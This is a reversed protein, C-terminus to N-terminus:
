FGEPLTSNKGFSRARARARSLKALGTETSFPSLDHVPGPVPLGLKKNLISQAELYDAQQSPTSEALNVGRIDGPKRVNEAIARKLEPPMPRNMIEPTLPRTPNGSVKVPMASLDALAAEYSMPEKKQSNGAGVADDVFSLAPNNHAPPNRGERIVNGSQGRVTPEYPWHAQVDQGPHTGQEIRGYKNSAAGTEPDITIDGGYPAGSRQAAQARSMGKAEMNRAAEVSARVNAAAQEEATLPEEVPSLTRNLAAGVDTQGLAKLSAPIDLGELAAGGRQMAGGLGRLAPPAAIEAAAAIPHGFIATPAALKSAAKVARAEGLASMGRGTASMAKGALQPGYKLAGALADPAAVGGLAEAVAEGGQEPNMAWSKLTDSAASGAEKALDTGLGPLSRITDPLNHAIDWEAKVGEPISALGGLVAKAGGALAGVGGKVVATPSLMGHVGRGYNEVLQDVYAKNPDANVTEMAARNGAGELLQAFPDTGHIAPLDATGPSGIRALTGKAENLLRDQEARGGDPAVYPKTSATASAEDPAALSSPVTGYPASEDTSWDNPKRALDANGYVHENSADHLRQAMQALEAFTPM